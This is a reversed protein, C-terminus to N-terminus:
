QIAEHKNFYQKHSRWTYYKISFQFLGLYPNGKSFITSSFTYRAGLNLNELFNFELGALIGIDNDISTSFPLTNVGNKKTGDLIIKQGFINKSYQVGVNLKFDESFNYQYYVPIDAYGFRYKVIPSEKKFSKGSLLLEVGLKSKESLTLSYVFGANFLIGSKFMISDNYLNSSTLGLTFAFSATEKNSYITQSKAVYSFFCLVLLIILAKSTFKYFNM